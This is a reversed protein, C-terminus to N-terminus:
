DPFKSDIIETANEACALWSIELHQWVKNVVTPAALGCVYLKEDKLSATDVRDAAKELILLKNATTAAWAEKEPQIAASDAKEKEFNIGLM